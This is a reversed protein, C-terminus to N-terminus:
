SGRRIEDAQASNKGIIRVDSNDIVDKLAEAIAVAAGPTVVGEVIVTIESRASATADDNQSSPETFVPNSPSGVSAQIGGGGGLGTESAIAAVQAAGLVAMAATAAYGIPTAGYKAWTKMIASRTDIIATRIASAKEIVLIAKAVGAFKGHYATLLSTAANTGARRFAVMREESFRVAEARRDEQEITANTKEQEGRIHAEVRDVIDKNLLEIDEAHRETQEQTIRDARLEMDKLFSDTTALQATVLERRKDLAEVTKKFEAERRAALDEDDFEIVDAKIPGHGQQGGLGSRDISRAAQQLRQQETIQKAIEIRQKLTEIYAVEDDLEKKQFFGSVRHRVLLQERIQLQRELAQVATLDAGAPGFFSGIGRGVSTLGTALRAMLSLTVSASTILNNFGEKIRPDNLANTLQNISNTAGKFSNKDGEFLEGFTNSLAKLSGGLTDRAAAAAGGYRKELEALILEQARAKDGTEVLSKIMAQQSQSFIVGTRRLATLGKDPEQLARGVLRAASTLDVGLRTSLDLVAKTANLITGGSLSRFALLATEVGIVAEDTFTTTRAMNQAFNQLQASSLRVSSSANKLATDLQAVAAESETTAAVIARIGAVVGAAVFVRKLGDGFSSFSKSIKGVQFELSSIDSRVKKLEATFKATEAAFNVTVDGASTGM